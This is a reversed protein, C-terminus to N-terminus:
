LFSKFPINPEHTFADGFGRPYMYRRQDQDNPFIFKGGVQWIFPKFKYQLRYRRYEYLLEIEGPDAYFPPWIDYHVPIVVKCGLNEAMRLVDSATMKDTMGIPNEAFSVVAVDINFQKGHKVAYNSFHSDGSHYVTGGPTKVVYNVAREDMDGPMRGRIDGTPPPSVLATRDFSDVASIEIDKIKIVDGPKVTRLRTVPVGWSRWKDTCFKPGIFPVDALRTFAATSYIDMHDTHDHTALVADVNRVLFPDIVHPINRPNLLIEDSGAIRGLQFNEGKQGPSCTHHSTKANGSFLDLCINCGGASKVWIGACGLWWMALTRPPVITEDIEEILWKGWEPFSDMIWKERTIENINPIVRMERKRDIGPVELFFKGAKNIM